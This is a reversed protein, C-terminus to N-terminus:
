QNVFSLSQMRSLDAEAEACRNHSHVQLGVSDSQGTVTIVVIDLLHHILIVTRSTNNHQRDKWHRQQQMSTPAQPCICGMQQCNLSCPKALTRVGEALQHHSTRHKQQVIETAVTAAVSESQRALCAALHVREARQQAGAELTRNIKTVTPQLKLNWASHRCVTQLQWLLALMCISASCRCLVHQM